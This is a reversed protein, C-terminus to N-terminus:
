FLIDFLYYVLEKTKGESLAIQLGEYQTRGQNDIWAIEGDLIFSEAKIKACAKEIEPYKKTWDLGSRTLLRISDGDKRCLTRYGDFKIEHIWDPGVPPEDVLTALQPQQFAFIKEKKKSNKVGHIAKSAPVKSKLVSQDELLIDRDKDASSDNRKMLLWNHKSGKGRMATRVLIWRGRLKEGRLEFELRGKKLQASANAPPFWEGQDWVIVQGGGYEAAPIDGEFHAYSLPHDEVEVALRRDKPNLSPGKPIAWSKLVGNLELRFDYHLHSAHHKQIVFLNKHKSNQNQGRPEATKKFNRKKRYERLSM